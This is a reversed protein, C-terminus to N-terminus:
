YHYHDVLANCVVPSGHHSTHNAIGSERDNEREPV